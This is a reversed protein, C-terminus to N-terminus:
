KIYNTTSVRSLSVGNVTKDEKGEVNERYEAAQGRGEDRPGGARGYKRKEPKDITDRENRQGRRM